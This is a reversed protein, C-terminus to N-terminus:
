RRRQLIIRRALVQVGAAEEAALAIKM